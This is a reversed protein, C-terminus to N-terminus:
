YSKEIRERDDDNNIYFEYMDLSLRFPMWFAVNPINWGDYNKAVGKNVIHGSSIRMDESLVIVEKDEAPTCDNVSFWLHDKFWMGGALFGDVFSAAENADDSYAYAKKIAARETEEENYM